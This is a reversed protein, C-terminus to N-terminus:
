DSVTGRSRERWDRLADIRAIRVADAIMSKEKTAKAIDGANVARFADAAEILREAQPYEREEFGLRGRSDSECVKVFGTFREPKRIVDLSQLLDALKATRLEELRHVHTHYRASIVALERCRNPVRLRQCLTETIDAGRAEHGHHSPWEDPPTTAKGLDHCIAAFRTEVDDARKCAQDLVMLTHLGSDIEPHHEAPQPVGFLADVEPLIVALAQASRLTEFFARPARECLAKELEQWVREAVLNGVEGDAAMSRMLEMTEDAVKFGMPAFRAMFRAVRLVRVPDEIFADSVHRLRREKLDNQGNFPDHLTGDPSEAIANITLDRRSLDEELTVSATTDFSFGHYGPGTKRETRALAYEEQSEPHLFVPFDKGVSRYGAELMADPTTGVVVWDRDVVPLGLLADRVAGGVLYTNMGWHYVRVGWDFSNLPGM